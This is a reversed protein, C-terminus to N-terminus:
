HSFQIVSFNLLCYDPNSVVIGGFIPRKIVVSYQRKNLHSHWEKLRSHPPYEKGPVQIRISEDTADSDQYRFM